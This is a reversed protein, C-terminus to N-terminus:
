TRRRRAAALLVAGCGIAMLAFSSPEPVVSFIATVDLSFPDRFGPDSPVGAAEGGFTLIHEGLPLPELMIWYGDSVAPQYDGAPVNFVNDAPLTLVFVPSQERHLFPDPVIDAGNLTANLSTISDVFANLRERMEDATGEDTLFANLIPFFIYKGGPVTFTRLVPDTSFSGGLFFVPGGVDGLAASSGDPDLLPNTDAPFSLAWNWWDATWEGLTKGAVTSGPAVAAAQV